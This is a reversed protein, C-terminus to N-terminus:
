TELAVTRRAIERAIKTQLLTIRGRGFLKGPLSTLLESAVSEVVIHEALHEEQESHGSDLGEVKACARLYALMTNACGQGRRMGVADRM